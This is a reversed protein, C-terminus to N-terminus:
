QIQLVCITRERLIGFPGSETNTIAAQLQITTPTSPAHIITQGSLIIPEVTNIVNDFLNSAQFPTPPLTMGTTTDVLQISMIHTGSVTHATLNWNVLYFGAVPLTITVDDTISVGSSVSTHFFTIPTFTSSTIDQTDGNADESYFNGFNATLAGTAGTAGTAGNAGPTGPLGMPGTPGRRDIDSSSSHSHHHRCHRHRRSRLINQLFPDDTLTGEITSFSFLISLTCLIHAFKFM